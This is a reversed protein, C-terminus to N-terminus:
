VQFFQLIDTLTTILYFFLFFSGTVSLVALSIVFAGSPIFPWLKLLWCSPGVLAGPDLMAAAM